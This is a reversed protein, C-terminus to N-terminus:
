LTGKVHMKEYEESQEKVHRQSGTLKYEKKRM